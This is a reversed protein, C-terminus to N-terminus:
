KGVAVFLFPAGIMLMGSGKYDSALGIALLMAGATITRRPRGEYGREIHALSFGQAHVGLRRRGM